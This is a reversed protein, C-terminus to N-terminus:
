DTRDGNEWLACGPALGGWRLAPLPPENVVQRTLKPVDTGVPWCTDKNVVSRTFDTDRDRDRDYITARTFNAAHLDAGELHAGRLDAQYFNAGVLNARQLRAGRLDAGTLDTDRLQAKRLDAGRFDANRLTKGSFNIGQIDRSGPTFGPISEAIEVNARWASYKQREGLSQELFLASVGVAIGTILGGGIGALVEIRPEREPEKVAM